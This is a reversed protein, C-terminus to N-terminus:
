HRQPPEHEGVGLAQALETSQWAAWSDQDATVWGLVSLAEDRAATSCEEVLDIAVQGALTIVERDLEMPVALETAGVESGTM